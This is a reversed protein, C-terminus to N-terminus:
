RKEEAIRTELRKAAVAAYTRCSQGEAQDPHVSLLVDCPLAAVKDISRRFEAVIGPEKGTGTFRYDDASVPNLSDAYVVNRCITGECSRWSWTTSGPTHGPTLHATVAVDGLRLVEGDKVVRVNKVPAFRNIAITYQPDDPTPRGSEIARAGPASAAVTAGSARQLAAIGGAHDYHAHSNLILKVDATRFGLDAIHRDILAASQPLGGDLLILGANSVIAVSSLGKTGVYYTNGYVRYPERPANWDDCSGCAIPPDPRVASAGQGLLSISTLALLAGSILRTM